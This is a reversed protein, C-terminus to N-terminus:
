EIFITRLAKHFLIKMDENNSSTFYKDTEEWSNFIVSYSDWESTESQLDEIVLKIEYEKRFPISQNFINEPIHLYLKRNYKILSVVIDKVKNM